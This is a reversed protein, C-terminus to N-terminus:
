TNLYMRMFQLYQFRLKLAFASINWEIKWVLFKRTL